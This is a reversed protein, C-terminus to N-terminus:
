TFLKSFLRELSDDEAIQIFEKIPIPFFFEGSKSSAKKTVGSELVKSLPIWLWTKFGFEENSIAYWIHMNFKRQLTSYLKAELADIPFSEHLKTIKRYKVDVFIFGFNPILILFDPRKGSLTEKFSKSFNESEQRIYLYPIRHKDLWDKFNKETERGKEIKDIVEM